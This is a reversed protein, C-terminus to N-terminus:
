IKELDQTAENLEYIVIEPTPEDVDEYKKEFSKMKKTILGTLKYLDGYTQAKRAKRSLLKIFLALTMIAGKETMSIPTDPDTEGEPDFKNFFQVSMNEIKINTPSGPSSGPLVKLWYSM